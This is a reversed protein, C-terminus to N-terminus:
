AAGLMTEIFGRASARESSRDTPIAAGLRLAAMRRFISALHGTPLDIAKASKRPAGSVLPQTGVSVRMNM